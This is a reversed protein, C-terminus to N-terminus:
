SEGWSYGYSYYRSMPDAYVNKLNTNAAMTRYVGYCPVLVADDLIIECMQRYLDNRVSEDQESRAQELLADVEPNKYNYMNAGQGNALSSHFFPYMAFDGDLVTIAHAWFSVDYNGGAYVQENWTAREMQEVNVTIGIQRLQDQIIEAPKSYNTAAIVRITIELGNPYGAEALLQKALEVDYTIGELDEPYQPVSKTMPAPNEYAVGNVAGLILDETNIAHAIAQRLTKNKMLESECNFCLFFFCPQPAEYYELNPNDLIAQRDSFDQSPQCIDLNGAQLAMIATTNDTIIHTTITKIEPAGRWYDEFAKLTISEGTKVSDLYYPGSGVPQKAFGEPDTEYVAKPVIALNSSAFAYITGRVPAILHVAVEGDSTLEASELNSTIKSTYSSAIATNISFVVDEATITDGNHFKVGDRITFTIYYGDESFKYETCLNPHLEGNEDDYLLSDFIQYHVKQSSIDSTNYPDFTTVDSVIRDDLTTKTQQPAATGGAGFTSGGSSGGSTGCASLLLSLAMCLAAFSTLKKKM